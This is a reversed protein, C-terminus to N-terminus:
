TANLRIRRKQVYLRSIREFEQGRAYYLHGAREQLRRFLSHLTGREGSVIIRTHTSCYPGLFLHRMEHAMVQGLVVDLSIREHRGLDEFRDYLIQARRM